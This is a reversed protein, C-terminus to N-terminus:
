KSHCRVTYRHTHVHVATAQGPRMVQKRTNRESPQRTTGMTNGRISRLVAIFIADGSEVLFDKLIKDFNISAIWTKPLNFVFILMVSVFFLQELKLENM